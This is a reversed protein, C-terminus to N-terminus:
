KKSDPQIEGLTMIPKNTGGFVGIIALVIGGLLYWAQIGFAEAVAGAIALGIPTMAPGLSILVTFVRGQINPPVVSQVVAMISGSAMPIMMGAVFMGVIALQILNAPALGVVSISISAALLAVLATMMRRKFGGWVGLTVGGLVMGIGMMSEIWALEFAGGSFHLLVLLPTLAFTPILIFNTLMLAITIFRGGTWNKMYSFGERIDEIVSSATSDSKTETTPQPISIMLLPLVAMAATGIDVALVFQMPLLVMLLAGLAPAAIKALGSLAQYMGNVRSLHEEPVMLSASAQLAPWQFSGLTSRVAMAMFVHAIQVVGIAWLLALGAVVVASLTDAAIMVNRRSWRDVLAGAFPSVLVQPLIVMMTALSLVLASGTTFTLWWVLAFQVLASGVLSFAQGSFIKMYNRLQSNELESVKAPEEVVTLEPAQVVISALDTIQTDGDPKTTNRSLLALESKEM